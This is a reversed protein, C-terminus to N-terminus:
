CLRELLGELTSLLMLALKTALCLICISWSCWIICVLLTILFGIEFTYFRNSVPSSFHGGMVKRQKNFCQQPYIRVQALWIVDSTESCRSLTWPEQLLFVECAGRQMRGWERHLDGGGGCSRLSTAMNCRHPLMVTARLHNEMRTEDRHGLSFNGRHPFQAGERLERRLQRPPTTKFTLPAAWPCTIRRRVKVMNDM